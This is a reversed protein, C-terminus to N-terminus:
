SQAGTPHEGVGSTGAVEGTSESQSPAFKRRLARRELPDRILLLPVLFAYPLILLWGKTTVPMVLRAIVQQHIGSGTWLLYILVCVVPVLLGFLRWRLPAIELEDLNTREQEERSVALQYDVMQRVAPTRALYSRVYGRLVQYGIFGIFSPGLIYLVKEILPRQGADSLMSMAT